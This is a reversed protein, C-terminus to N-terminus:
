THKWRSQWYSIVIATRNNIWCTFVRRRFWTRGIRNAGRGGVEEVKTPSYRGNNRNTAGISSRRHRRRPPSSRHHDNDASPPGPKSNVPVKNYKSRAAELMQQEQGKYRELMKDVNKLKQPAHESYIEVLEFRIAEYHKTNTNTELNLFTSGDSWSDNNLQSPMNSPMTTIHNTSQQNTKKKSNTQIRQGNSKYITHTFFYSLAPISQQFLLILEVRWAVGSWDFERIPM